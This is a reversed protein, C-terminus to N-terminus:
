RNPARCLHQGQAYWRKIGSSDKDLRRNSRNCDLLCASRTLGSDGITLQDAIYGERFGTAAKVTMVFWNSVLSMVLGFLLGILVGVLRWAWKGLKTGYGNGEAM